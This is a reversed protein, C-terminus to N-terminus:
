RNNNIYGKGEIIEIMIIYFFTKLKKMLKVIKFKLNLIYRCHVFTSVSKSVINEIYKM